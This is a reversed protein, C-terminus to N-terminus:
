RHRTEASRTRSRARRPKKRVGEVLGYKRLKARLTARNLGLMAAARTLNGAAQRLVVEFL